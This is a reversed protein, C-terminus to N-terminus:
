ISSAYVGSTGLSTGKTARVIVAVLERVIKNLTDMSTVEALTNLPLVGVGDAVLVMVGEAVTVGDLVDVGVRVFVGIVKVGVRVKVGVMVNVGVTVNVGDKVGM